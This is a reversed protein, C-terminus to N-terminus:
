YPQVTGGSCIINVDPQITIVPDPLVTISYQESVTQCGSNQAVIVRFFHLGASLPVSTYDALTAGPIVTWTGSIFQEWQYQEAGAGGTVDVHLEASGGACFDNLM